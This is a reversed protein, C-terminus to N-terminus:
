NTIFIIYLAIASVMIQIISFRFVCHTNSWGMNKRVHDHLPTRTNKLIHIKFVRILSVKLLGLGGDLMIVLSLLLYLFPSGSNVAAIAIVIGMSRSGADGMLLISPTANFWLYALLCICFLLLFYGNEKWVGDFVSLIYYGTLTIITLTASLGDVGDACNTVNIAGWVLGTIIVAMLIEPIKVSANGFLRFYLTSGHNFLYNAAVLVAILLDLVGKRLEGWPNSSRDDLYGTLMCLFVLILNIGNELSLPAFLLSACLFSIVFFLGAGRPKGASLKGDHAYERGKDTPLIKMGAKTMIFTAAFAFIAGILRIYTTNGVMYSFM